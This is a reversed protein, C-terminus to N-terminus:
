RRVGSVASSARPGLARGFQEVARVAQAPGDEQRLHQGLQAANRRLQEDSTVAEIIRSLRDATLTRRPAPAPGVGLEHVRRGWYPQDGFFPVVAGPVGARLGAATTGAGGHHIVGAMRPFLWTHPVPGSVFAGEPAGGNLIGGWGSLLVARQGTRRLATLVLEATQAPDTNGMSGFGISVPPPGEDLFAQLAGPPQYDPAHDLTWFGTLHVHAPWDGPRRLVRPSIGCLVPPTVRGNWGTSGTLPAPPLNLVAHRAVADARRYGQWMAQRFAHHTLLNVGGGLRGLWAPVLPAPFERTPTFPVVHAEIVPIRLHESLARAQHLGGIGCALLDRDHLAALATRLWGVSYEQILRSTYANIKLFNGRRLLERLEPSQMAEQVNGQVETVDIGLERGTIAYGHHTVLKVDHGARVLAAGLALYPQVDGQTGFALMGVKM